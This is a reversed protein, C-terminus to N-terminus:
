ENISFTYKKSLLEEGTNEDIYIVDMKEPIAKTMPYTPLTEDLEIRYYANGRYGLSNNVIAAELKRAVDEDKVLVYQQEGDETECSVSDSPPTRLDGPVTPTNQAADLISYFCRLPFGGNESDYNWFKPPDGVLASKKNTKQEEVFSKDGIPRIPFKALYVVGRHKEMENKIKPLLEKVMDKKKFADMEMEYEVYVSKVIEEDSLEHSTNALAYYKRWQTDAYANGDIEKYNNSPTVVKDEINKIENNDAGDTVVQENSSVQTESNEKNSDCASLNLALFLSPLLLLNRELRMMSRM